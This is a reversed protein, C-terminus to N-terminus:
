VALSVLFLVVFIFLIFGLVWAGFRLAHQFIPGMREDRTAGYVLSIAVILPALCWLQNSMAILPNM